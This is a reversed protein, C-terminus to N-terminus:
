VKTLDRALNELKAKTQNAKTLQSKALFCRDVSYAMCEIKKFSLAVSRYGQRKRAKTEGERSRAGCTENRRVLLVGLCISMFYPFDLRGIRYVKCPNCEGGDWASIETSGGSSTTNIDETQPLSFLAFWEGFKEEEEDAHILEEELAAIKSKLSEYMAQPDVPIDAKKKGKQATHSHSGNVQPKAGSSAVSNSTVSTGNTVSLGNTGNNPAPPAPGQPPPKNPRQPLPATTPLGSM